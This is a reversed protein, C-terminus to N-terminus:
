CSKRGPAACRTSCRSSSCSTTSTTSFWLTVADAAVLAADRRAFGDRVEQYRGWGVEAIFRARVDSLAALPLGAPVPGEHLVDRWPLIEGAVGAERMLGAATDGNTVHLM